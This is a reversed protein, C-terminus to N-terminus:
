KLLSWVGAIIDIATRFWEWLGRVDIVWGIVITYLVCNINVCLLLMDGFLHLLVGFMLLPVDACIGRSSILFRSCMLNSRSICVLLRFELIASYHLRWSQWGPQVLNISPGQVTGPDWQFLTPCSLTQYFINVVIQVSSQARNCIPKKTKQPINKPSVKNCYLPFFYSKLPFCITIKLIINSNEM